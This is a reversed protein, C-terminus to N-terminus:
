ASITLVVKGIHESSEVLKHAEAASALPFTQYIVPMIRGADLLPWIHKELNAAIAGKFTTERVRLTSGTITLRKVMVRMLDIPSNAGGMANIILLRGETALLGVNKPTYDGGIMDLIVDVGKPELIKIVEAFNEKKYNVCKVAGLKEAFACKEDTGATAYVRGGLAKVMQIAAVGIGSTGGHVLFSEGSVFRGRDFVNTWVTFFTEPLSAAEEFSLGEPVPLCQVGPVAVYEAYGGGALLACVKDGPRWRKEDVGVHEVVGAVELGPIDAPVGPPAPYRGERQIIDPRNVGAAAVKILVEESKIEPIPREASQLVEPDGPSTIVIARM